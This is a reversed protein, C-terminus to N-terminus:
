KYTLQESAYQIILQRQKYNLDKQFVELCPHLNERNKWGQPCFVLYKNTPPFIHHDRKSFRLCVPSSTSFRSYKRQVQSKPNSFINKFIYVGAGQIVQHLELPRLSVM